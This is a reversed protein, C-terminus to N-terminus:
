RDTRVIVLPAENRQIYPPKTLVLTTTKSLSLTSAFIHSPQAASCSLTFIPRSVRVLLPQPSMRGALRIAAQGNSPPALAAVACWRVLAGIDLWDNYETSRYLLPM